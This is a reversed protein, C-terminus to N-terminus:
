RILPKNKFFPVMSPSMFLGFRSIEIPPCQMKLPFMVAPVMQM